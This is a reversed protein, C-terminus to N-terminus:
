NQLRCSFSALQGFKEKFKARLEHNNQASLYKELREAYKKFGEFTKKKPIDTANVLTPIANVNLNLQVMSEGQAHAYPAWHGDTHAITINILPNDHDRSMTSIRLILNPLLEELYVGDEMESLNIKKVYLENLEQYEHDRSISPIYKTGDTCEIQVAAASFSFCSLLALLALSRKM